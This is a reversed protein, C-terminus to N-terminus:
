PMRSVTAADAAWIRGKTTPATRLPPARRALRASSCCLSTLGCIMSLLGHLKFEGVRGPVQDCVARLFGDHRFHLRALALFSNSVDQENFEGLRGPIHACVAGLFAPHRFYLLGLAHLMNAIGQASFGRLRGPVHACVAQMFGGHRFGLLGLAYVTNSINGM